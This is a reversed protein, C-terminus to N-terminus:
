RTSLGVCMAQRNGSECVSGSVGVFGVVSILSIYVDGALEDVIM